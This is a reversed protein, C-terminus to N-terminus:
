AVPLASWRDTFHHVLNEVIPGSLSLSVDTWGMRSSKTRDVASLPNASFDSALPWFRVSIKTGTISVTLTSSAPTTTIKGPSFLQMLIERTPMRSPIVQLRKLVRNEAKEIMIGHLSVAPTGDALVQKKYTTPINCRGFTGFECMDLGGM